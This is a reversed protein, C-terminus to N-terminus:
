PLKKLGLKHDPVIQTVKTTRGSFTTRAVSANIALPALYSQVLIVVRAPMYLRQILLLRRQQQMAHQADFAM